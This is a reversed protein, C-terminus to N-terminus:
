APDGHCQKLAANLERCQQTVQEIECPATRCVDIQRAVTAAKPCEGPAMLITGVLIGCSLLYTIGVNALVGVLIM